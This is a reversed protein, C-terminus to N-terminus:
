FHLWSLVRGENLLALNAEPKLFVHDIMVNRQHGYCVIGFFPTLPEYLLSKPDYSPGHGNCQGSCFLAFM